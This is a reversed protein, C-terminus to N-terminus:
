RAGGLPGYAGCKTAVGNDLHTDVGGVIARDVEVITM